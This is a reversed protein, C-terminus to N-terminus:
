LSYCTVKFFEKFTFWRFIKEEMLTKRSGRWNSVVCVPLGLRSTVLSISLHQMQGRPSGWGAEIIDVYFM